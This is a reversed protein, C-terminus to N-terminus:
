QGEDDTRVITSTPRRSNARHGRGVFRFYINALQSGLTALLSAVM